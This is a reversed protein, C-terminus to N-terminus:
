RKLKVINVNEIYSINLISFLVSHYVVTETEIMAFRDRDDIIHVTSRETDIEDNIYKRYIEYDGIYYREERNNNKVVVKRSRNGGMDYNYYSTFTGNGASQLRDAFDWVMSTLHPMTLMNGHVDYTYDNFTQNPDHKLLRNTTTDYVYDKWNDSQMNGLEDFEYTHNYIQMANDAPNPVGINNAFDENTPMTLSTLERGTANILRYLPDYTYTCNPAIVQNSYYHTQQANDNQQVINGVADFTYNLDQMIDVGNNRTTLLRKLRFTKADYYSKTKTNNGYYVDSRQGKENYDINSIYTTADHLVQELLGGKNYVYSAVTTDPQTITIPRNLADYTTQTTFEESQLIVNGSWDLVNQYDEAFRKVLTLLNNKFDFLNFYNKGDQSCVSVVQGINNKTADNGYVQKQVMKETNNETVFMELPRQLIDYTNRFSHGRENWARIPKGAVDGVMWRKGSDINQTYLPQKYAYFHRTMERGKADTVLTPRGGIDLTNHVRYKGITGNDDEVIFVRGMSDLYQTQPTNNHPITIQAARKDETSATSGPSRLTYWQSALVNDNQDYSKQEWPTFEVKTFTGDPFDTKINRTLPDYHLIPTVGYETLETEPEYDPTTSFWPEYQKVAKGKNNLITRGTAVWRDTTEIQEPIGSAPLIWALGDEAQVKTQVEQGLGSTYTYSEMWRTDPDAHTERTKVHSYVPKANNKWNHLDYEYIITPSTLTDGEGNKGMVAM